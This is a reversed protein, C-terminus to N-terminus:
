WAGQYAARVQYASVPSWLVAFVVRALRMWSFPESVMEGIGIPIAVVCLLGVVAMFVREPASMPTKGPESVESVTLPYSQEGALMRRRGELAARAQQENFCDAGMVLDGRCGLRRWWFIGHEEAVFRTPGTQRIRYKRM